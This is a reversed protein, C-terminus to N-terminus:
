QAECLRDDTGSLDGSAEDAVAVNVVPVRVGGDRM